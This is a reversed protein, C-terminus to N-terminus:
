QQSNNNKYQRRTNLTLLKIIQSHSFIDCIAKQPKCSKGIDLPSQSAIIMCKM